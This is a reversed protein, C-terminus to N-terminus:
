SPTLSFRGQREKEPEKFFVPNAQGLWFGMLLITSSGPLSGEVDWMGSHKHCPGHLSSLSPSKKWFWCKNRQCFLLGGRGESCLLPISQISKLQLGTTSQMLSGLTKRKGQDKTMDSQLPSGSAKAFPNNTIRFYAFAKFKGM